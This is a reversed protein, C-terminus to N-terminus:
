QSSLTTLRRFPSGFDLFRRDGSQLFIIIGNRMIPKFYTFWIQDGSLHRLELRENSSGTFNLIATNGDQVKM